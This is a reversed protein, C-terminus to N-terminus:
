GVVGALMTHVGEWVGLRMSVQSEVLVLGDGHVDGDYGIVLVVQDGQGVREIVWGLGV